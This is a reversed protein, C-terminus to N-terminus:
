REMAPVYTPYKFEVYNVIINDVESFVTNLNIRFAIVEGLRLDDIVVNQIFLEHQDSQGVVTSGEHSNVTNVFEGPLKHWCEVSIEVTDTVLGLTNDVNVEFSIELIGDSVEDWDNEVRTSFLLYETIDNFMYGGLSSANPAIQTAGSAGPSLNIGALSYEHWYGGTGDVTERYVHNVYTNDLMPQGSFGCGVLGLSLIMLLILLYKM